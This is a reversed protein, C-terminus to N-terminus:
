LAFGRDVTGHLRQGGKAIDQIWKLLSSLDSSLGGTIFSLAITDLWVECNHYCLDRAINTDLYINLM